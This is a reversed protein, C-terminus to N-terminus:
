GKAVPIESQSRRTPNHVVSRGVTSNMAGPTARCAVRSKLCRPMSSCSLEETRAMMSSPSTLTGAM